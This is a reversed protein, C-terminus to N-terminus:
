SRPEVQMAHPGPVALAREPWFTHGWHMAPWYAGLAPAELQVSHGAPM